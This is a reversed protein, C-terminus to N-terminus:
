VQWGIFQYRYHGILFANPLREHVVQEIRVPIRGEILRDLYNQFHAARQRSHGYLVSPRADRIGFLAPYPLTKLSALVLWCSCAAAQPKAQVDGSGDDLLVVAAHAEGAMLSFTRDEPKYQRKRILHLPNSSFLRATGYPHPHRILPAPVSADGSRGQHWRITRMAVLAVCADGGQM